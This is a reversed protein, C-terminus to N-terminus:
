AATRLIRARRNGGVTDRRRRAHLLADVGLSRGPPHVAFVIQIALLFFYTWPWEQPARYLGLWLNLAMLGGLLGGLRTVVGLMLSVGIFVEVLYVLPAFLHFNPLVVTEVLTGHIPFAPHKVMEGMWYSLGTTGFPENPQDTYHPPVKWLSQQWWMAGIFFRVFWEALHSPTRQADIRSYALTAIAVSGIVLLWSVIAIWGGQTMFSWADVFPNVRM